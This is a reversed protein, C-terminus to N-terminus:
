NSWEYGYLVGDSAKRDRRQECRDDCGRAKFTEYMESIEKWIRVVPRTM